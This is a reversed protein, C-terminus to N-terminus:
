RFGESFAVLADVLPPQAIEGLVHQVLTRDGARKVHSILPFDEGPSFTRIKLMTMMSEDPIRSM